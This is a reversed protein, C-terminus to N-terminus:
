EKMQEWWYQHRVFFVFEGPKAVTKKNTCYNPAVIGSMLIDSLSYWTERHQGWHWVSDCNAYYWMAPGYQAHIQIVAINNGSPLTMEGIGEKNQRVWAFNPGLQRNSWVQFESTTIPQGTKSDLMRIAITQNAQAHLPGDGHSIWILLSMAALSKIRGVVRTKTRM